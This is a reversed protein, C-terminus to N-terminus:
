FPNISLSPTFKLYGINAGLRMGIGTRIPALVVRGRMHYTLGVGGVIYASGGIGGFRRFIDEPEQLNYVLFMVRSGQVGLDYGVTPSQWYVKIPAHSKTQLEGQGFSLGALFAGGGETGLIYGNPAGYNQFTYQIVSALGASISGFFGRGAEDIEAASYTREEPMPEPPPLERLAEVPPPITASPRRANETTTQWSSLRGTHKENAPAAPRKPAAIRPSQKAAPPKTVPSKSAPPNALVPPNALTPAPQDKIAREVKGTMYAYKAETVSKLDSSVKRLRQLKECTPNDEAEANVADFEILLRRADADLQSNHADNVFRFGREHAAESPWGKQRALQDFKELLRPRNQNTFDRLYAGTDDVLEAFKEPTCVTEQAHAVSGLLVAAVVTLALTLRRRSPSM